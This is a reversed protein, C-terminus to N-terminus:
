LDCKPLGQALNSILGQGNSPLLDSETAGVAEIEEVRAAMYMGGDRDDMTKGPTVLSMEWGVYKQETISKITYMEVDNCPDDNISAFLDLVIGVPGELISDVQQADPNFVILGTIGSEHNNAKTKDYILQMEPLTTTVASHYCLEVLEGTACSERVEQEQNVCRETSHLMLSMSWGPFTRACSRTVQATKITHRPDESIESYLAQTEEVPGEIIQLVEGSHAHYVMMGTIGLQENKVKAKDAIRKVDANAAYLNM